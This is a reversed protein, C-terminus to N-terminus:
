GGLISGAGVKGQAGEGGYQGIEMAQDWSHSPRFGVGQDKGM